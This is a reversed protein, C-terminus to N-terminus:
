TGKEALLARVASAYWSQETASSSLRYAIRGERDLLIFLSSHVLEGTKEDRARTVSLETLLANVQAPEGNLFHFESEFHYSKSIMERLPQTDAEPNLSIALIALKAREEPTLANLLSRINSLMMPCATTCTSYVATVLVVRGKVTELSVETNNQDRLTFLPMPLATRIRDAPFALPAKVPRARGLGLLSIAIAVVLIAASAGASAFSRRRAKWLERLPTWWFLIFIAELAFPESVMIWVSSMDTWGSAPDGRFCRMRFDELFAAWIGSGVPPAFAMLAVFLQYFVLAFLCFAPFKGSALFRNTANIIRYGIPAPSTLTM